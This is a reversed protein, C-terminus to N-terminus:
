FDVILLEEPRRVETTFVARSIGKVAAVGEPLDFGCCAGGAWEEFLVGFWVRRGREGGHVVFLAQDCVEVAGSEGDAGM